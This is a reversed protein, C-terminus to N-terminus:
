ISLEVTPFVWRANLSDRERGPGQIEVTRIYFLVRRQM